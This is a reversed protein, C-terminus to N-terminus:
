RQLSLAGNLGRLLEAVDEEGEGPTHSWLIDLREMRRAVKLMCKRTSDVGGLMNLTAGWEHRSRAPLALVLTKVHLPDM